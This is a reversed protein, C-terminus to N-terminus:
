KRLRYEIDYPTGKQLHEIMAKALSAQDDPHVLSELGSAPPAAHDDYGLMEMFRPSHWMEGTQLNFEFLADQTGCVAREFREQAEHLQQAQRAIELKTQEERTVEWDVALVSTPEGAANRLVR